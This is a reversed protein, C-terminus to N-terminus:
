KGEIQEELKAIQCIGIEEQLAKCTNHISTIQDVEALIASKINDITLNEGIHFIKQDHIVFTLKRNYVQDEHTIEVYYSVKSTGDWCTGDPCADTPKLEDTDIKVIKATPM